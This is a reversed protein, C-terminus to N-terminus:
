KSNGQKISQIVVGSVLDYTDIRNLSKGDETKGVEENLKDIVVQQSEVKSELQGIRKSHSMGGLGMLVMSLGLFLISAALLKNM